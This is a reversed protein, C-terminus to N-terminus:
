EPPTATVGHTVVLEIAVHGSPCTSGASISLTWGVPDWRSSLPNIKASEKDVVRERRVDGACASERAGSYTRRGSAVPEDTVDVGKDLDVRRAVRRGRKLVM